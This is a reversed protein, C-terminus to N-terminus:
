RQAEQPLSRLWGLQVLIKQIQVGHQRDDSFIHFADPCLRGLTPSFCASGRTAPLRTPRFSTSCSTAPAACGIGTCHLARNDIRCADLSRLEPLPKPQKNRGVNESGQTVPSRRSDYQFQSRHSQQRATRRVYQPLVSKDM